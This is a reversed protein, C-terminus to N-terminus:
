SNGARRSAADLASVKAPMFWLILVLGGAAGAGAWIGLPSAELLDVGSGVFVVLTSTTTVLGGVIATVMIRARVLLMLATVVAVLSGVVLGIAAGAAGGIITGLAVFGEPSSLLLSPSSFVSAVGFEIGIIAGLVAGGPVALFPTFGPIPRAGSLALRQTM